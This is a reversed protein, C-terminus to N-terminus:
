YCKKHRSRTPPITPMVCLMRFVFVLLSLSRLVCTCVYIRMCIYMSRLFNSLQVVSTIVSEVWYCYIASSRNGWLVCRHKSCIEDTVAIVTFHNCGSSSSLSHLGAPNKCVSAWPDSPWQCCTVSLGWHLCWLYILGVAISVMLRPESVWTDYHVWQWLPNVVSNSAFMADINYKTSRKTYVPLRTYVVGHRGGHM